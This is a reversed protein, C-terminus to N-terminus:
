RRSHGFWEHMDRDIEHEIRHRNWCERVLAVVLGAVFVVVVVGLALNTLTLWLPYADHM